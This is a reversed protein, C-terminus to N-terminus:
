EIAVVRAAPAAMLAPQKAVHSWSQKLAARQNPQLHRAVVRRAIGKRQSDIALAFCAEPLSLGARLSKLDIGCGGGCCANEYIYAGNAVWVGLGLGVAALEVDGEIDQPGVTHGGALFCAIRALERAVSAYVLEPLKFITPVCVVTFEGDKVLTHMLQGAPDGLAAYDGPPQEGPALEVLALEVDAQGIEEQVGCFLEFLDDLDRPKSAWASCRPEAYLALRASAFAPLGPGEAANARPV